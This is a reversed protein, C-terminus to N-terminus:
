LSEVVPYLGLRACADMWGDTTSEVVLDAAPGGADFLAAMGEPIDGSMLYHTPVTGGQLTTRYGLFCSPGQSAWWEPNGEGDVANSIADRAAQRNAALVVITRFTDAM